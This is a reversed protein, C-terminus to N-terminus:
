TEGGIEVQYAEYVLDAGQQRHRVLHGLATTAAERIQSVWADADSGSEDLRSRVDVIAATIETHEHRLKDLAHALHPAQELVEEYLGHPGETVEIHADFAESVSALAHRAQAAWEDTRKPAPAALAHELDVLAQHLDARRGRAAKLAPSEDQDM